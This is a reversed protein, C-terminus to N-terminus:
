SFVKLLSIIWGVLIILLAICASSASKFNELSSVRSNMKEMKDCHDGMKIRIWSIDTAMKAISVDPDDDLTM